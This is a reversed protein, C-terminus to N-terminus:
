KGGEPHQQQDLLRINGHQSSFILAVTHQETERQPYVNFRTGQSQKKSPFDCSKHDKAAQVIGAM